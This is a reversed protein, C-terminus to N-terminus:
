GSYLNHGSQSILSALALSRLRKWLFESGSHSITQFKRNSINTDRSRWVRRFKRELIEQAFFFAVNGDILVENRTGDFRRKLGLSVGKIIKPMRQWNNVILCLQAFVNRTGPLDQIKDRSNTIASFCGFPCLNSGKLRTWPTMSIPLSHLKRNRM